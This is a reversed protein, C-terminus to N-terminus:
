AKELGKMSNGKGLKAPLSKPNPTEKAWGAAKDKMEKGLYGCFAARMQSKSKFPM